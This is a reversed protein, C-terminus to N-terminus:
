NFNSAFRRVEGFEECTKGITGQEKEGGRCRGLYRTDTCRLFGEQLPESVKLVAVVKRQKRSLASLPYIANLIHITWFTFFYGILGMAVGLALAWVVLDYPFLTSIRYPYM